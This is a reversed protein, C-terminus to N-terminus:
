FCRRWRGTPSPRACCRTWTGGRSTRSWRRMALQGSPSAGSTVVTGQGERCGTAAPRTWRGCLPIQQGAVVASGDLNQLACLPLEMTATAGPALQLRAGGAGFAYEVTGHSAIPEM